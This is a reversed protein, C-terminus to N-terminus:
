KGLQYWYGANGPDSKLANRYSNVAEPWNKTEQYIDGQLAYASSNKPDQALGKGLLDLAEKRADPSSKNEKFVVEAKKVLADANQPDQTLLDNLKQKADALNGSNLSAMAQDFLDRRAKAEASLKEQDAKQKALRDAEAKAQDKKKQAEEEAAVAAAQAAAATKAATAAAQASQASSNSAQGSNAALSQAAAGAKGLSNELDQFSQKLKDNSAKLADLQAQKDGAEKSKKQQVVKARLAQADSDDSNSILLQDLLDLARQEEGQSAYDQALKLINARKPDPAPKSLLVYATGGAALLVALVAAAAILTKRNM